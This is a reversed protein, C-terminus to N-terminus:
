TRVIIPQPGTEEDSSIVPREPDRLATLFQNATRVYTRASFGLPNRKALKLESEVIAHAVARPTYSDSFLPKLSTLTKDGSLKKLAERIAELSLEHEEIIKVLGTEDSLERLSPDVKNRLLKVSALVQPVRERVMLALQGDPRSRKPALDAFKKNENRETEVADPFDKPISKYLERFWGTMGDQIAHHHFKKIYNLAPRGSTRTELAEQLRKELEVRYIGFFADYLHECDPPIRAPIPYRYKFILSKTEPDLQVEFHAETQWLNFLAAAQSGSHYRPFRQRSPSQKDV